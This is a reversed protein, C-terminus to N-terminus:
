DFAIYESRVWGTLGDVSSVYFWNAGDNSKSQEIVEVTEGHQLSGLSSALSPTTRLNIPRGDTSIRAAVISNDTVMTNYERNSSLELCSFPLNVTGWGQGSASFDAFIEAYPQGDSFNGYRRVKYYGNQLTGVGQGYDNYSLCRSNKLYIYDPNSYYVRSASAASTFSSFTSLGTILTSAFLAAVKGFFLKM